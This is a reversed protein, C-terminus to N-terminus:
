EELRVLHRYLLIYPRVNGGFVARITDKGDQIFDASVSGSPSDFNIVLVKLRKDDKMQSAAKAARDAIKALFREKNLPKPSEPGIGRIGMATGVGQIVNIKAETNGLLLCDRFPPIRGRMTAVFKRITRDQEGTPPEDYPFSVQLNFPYGEPDSCYLRRLEEHFIDTVTKNPRLNKIEIHVPAKDLFAEYDATSGDLQKQHIARLQSYGEQSLTRIAAMEAWFDACAGNFELVPRIVNGLVDDACKRQADALGIEQIYTACDRNLLSLPDTRLTLLNFLSCGPIPQKSRAL